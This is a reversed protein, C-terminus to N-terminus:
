PEGVQPVSYILVAEDQYVLDMFAEFKREVLPAYTARELPGIYVYDIGYAQVISQAEAWDRTQYLQQIDAERSGLLAADGRWQVEHFPWGIVTPLGTHASIRAYGSYSGGVAEAVVGFPLNARMWEIAAADDPSAGSLYATGDLTRGWYPQFGDTKTWTALLPYVLGLCLPVLVLMRGIRSRRTGAAVFEAAMVAAALSWLIWAAFYFKFVTNMRSQFLDRLYVFEPALILLGGIGTMLLLFARAAPVDPIDAPTGRRLLIVISLAIMVGLILATWSTLLRRQLVAAVGSQIDSAGMADLVTNLAGPNRGIVILAAGALLWSFLFL